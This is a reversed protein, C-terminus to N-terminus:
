MIKPNIACRQLLDVTIFGESELMGAMSVTESYSLGTVRCLEDMSIGRNAKIATAAAALASATKEGTVPAFREKIETALDERKRRSYTGLGLLEPLEELDTLPEAIMEKLLRNCGASRLDDIRGPLAFVSRGYGNALRATLTGGGKYKSEVLITATSLGAIIRNRKLFTFPQPATGPPFDSMLCCGGTGAIKAAPTTHMKPYVENIGTPLVGFTKLGYALAAMHATIDVGIAMGSVIVPKVKARSLAGVIRECWEKGYPSIDRTGVIAICPANNFLEEPPTGSRIFLGPPADPCERLADPYCDELISIFAYGERQLCELERAADDLAKPTIEDIHKGWPGFLEALSDRSYSFLEHSSGLQSTIQRATAPELGFIRDLALAGSRELTLKDM